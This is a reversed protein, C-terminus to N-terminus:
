KSFSDYVGWGGLIMGGFATNSKNNTDPPIRFFWNGM